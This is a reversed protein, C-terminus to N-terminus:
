YVVLRGTILGAVYLSCLIYVYYMTQVYVLHWITVRCVVFENIVKVSGTIGDLYM